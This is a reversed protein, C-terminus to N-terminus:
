PLLKSPSSTPLHPSPLPLSSLFPRPSSAHLCEVCLPACMPLRNFHSPPADGAEVAQERSELWAHVMRVDASYHALAATLIWALCLTLCVFNVLVLNTVEATRPAHMASIRHPARGEVDDGRAARDTRAGFFEQTGPEDMLENAATTIALYYERPGTIAVGADKLETVSQAATVRIDDATPIRLSMCTRLSQVCPELAERLDNLKTKIEFPSDDAVHAMKTIEAQLRRVEDFDGAEVAANVQRLRTNIDQEKTHVFVNDDIYEPGGGPRQARWGDVGSAWGESLVNVASTTGRRVVKGTGEVAKTTGEVFDAILVAARDSFATGAGPPETSSKKIAESAEACLRASM